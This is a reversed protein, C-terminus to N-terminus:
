EQEKPVSLSINRLYILRPDANPGCAKLLMLARPSLLRLDDLSRESSAGTFSPPLTGALLDAVLKRWEAVLAKRQVASLASLDGSHRLREAEAQSLIEAVPSRALTRYDVGLRSKVFHFTGPMCDVAQASSCGSAAFGCLAIIRLPVQRWRRDTMGVSRKKMNLM